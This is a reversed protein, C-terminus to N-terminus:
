TGDLNRRKWEDNLYDYVATLLLCALQGQGNAAALLDDSAKRWWEDDSGPPFHANLFDFSVRFAAKHTAFYEEPTM